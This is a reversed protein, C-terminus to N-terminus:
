PQIKERVYARFNLLADLENARADVFFKYLAEKELWEFTPSRDCAQYAGDELKFILWKQGDYRWFEPIGLTAYLQNKDIDTHTIDVEVVLDPPPDTEFDVDRDSVAAQNEIYYACDPESGRKLGERNMTTSGMTKINLRLEEMIVTMVREMLRIIFEHTELPVTIELTGRDYTLRAARSQPLAELIQQYAQWNLGHLTVRKEGMATQIATQTKSQTPTPSALM